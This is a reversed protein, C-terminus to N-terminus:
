NWDLHWRLCEVLIAKVLTVFSKWTGLGLPIKLEWRVQRKQIMRYDRRNAERLKM